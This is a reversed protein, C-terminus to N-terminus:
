SGITAMFLVFGDLRQGLTGRPAAPRGASVQWGGRVAAAEWPARAPSQAQFARPSSPLSTVKHRSPPCGM